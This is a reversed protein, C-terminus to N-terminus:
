DIRRRRGILITPHLTSIVRDLRLGCEKLLSRYQGETLEDGNVAAMVELDLWKSLSFEPGDPILSEILILRAGPKMADRVCNLIKKKKPGPWDHIIWRLIYLDAESPIKQFFDGGVFEMRDHTIVDRSLHPQDFLIGRSKPAQELITTLQKGTGGGIDAIVPFETWDFAKAIAEMSLEGYTRITENFNVGVEPKRRCHEWLDFGYKLEFSSRGAKVVDSIGEWAENFAYGRCFHSVLLHYQSDPTDKRLLESSASNSFVGPSVQVFIGISEMARLMRFLAGTQTDTKQALDAVSVPGHALHDAIGLELIVGLSNCQWYNLLLSVVQEHFSRFSTIM